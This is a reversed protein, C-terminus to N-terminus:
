FMFYSLSNSFLVPGKRSWRRRVLVHRKLGMETNEPQVKPLSPLVPGSFSGSSLSGTLVSPPPPPIDDSTLQSRPSCHLASSIVEVRSFGPHKAQAKRCNTSM